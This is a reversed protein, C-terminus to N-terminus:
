VTLDNFPDSSVLIELMLVDGDSPDTATGAAVRSEIVLTGASAVNDADVDAQLTAGAPRVWSGRIGILTRYKRPLTVTYAGAGTRVFSKVERTQVKSVSTAGFRVLVHLKHVNAFNSAESGSLLPQGM